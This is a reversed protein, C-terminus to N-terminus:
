EDVMEFRFMEEMFARRPCLGFFTPVGGGVFGQFEFRASCDLFHMLEFFSRTAMTGHGHGM